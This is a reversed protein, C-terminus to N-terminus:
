EKVSLIEVVKQPGGKAVGGIVALKGDFQLYSTSARSTPMNTLREWGNGSHHVTLTINLPGNASLGAAMVVREGVVGIAGDSVPINIDKMRTWEGKAINYKEAVKSMGVMPVIGGFVYIFGAHGVINYFVRVSTMKPLEAWQQTEIDFVETYLVPDKVNRGGVIYIKNQYVHGGCAYRRYKLPPLNKWENRDIDYVVSQNADKKDTGAICYIKDDIHAIYPGTVGVPLPALQQWTEKETDFCDVAAVPNQNEDIGGILIIKNEHYVAKTCGVRCTPM